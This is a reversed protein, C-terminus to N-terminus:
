LANYDAFSVDPFQGTGWPVSRVLTDDDEPPRSVPVIFLIPPPQSISFQFLVSQVAYVAASQLGFRWEEVYGNM